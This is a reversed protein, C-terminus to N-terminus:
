ELKQDKHETCTRAAPFAELREHEITKGCVECLGYDDKTIKEIALKVDNYQAELQKLIATNAEYTSIAEAVDGEEIAESDVDKADAEWDSPNQPNKHGVSKLEAELTELEKELKIKFKEIDRKMTAIDYM